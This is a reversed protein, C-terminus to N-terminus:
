FSNVYRKAELYLVIKICSWIDGSIDGGEYLDKAFHDCLLRWPSSGNKNKQFIGIRMHECDLQNMTPSLLYNKLEIVFLTCIMQPCGSYCAAHLPLNGETDVDHFTKPFHEFITQAVEVNGIRAAHHLLKEKMAKTSNTGTVQILQAIIRKNARPNSCALELNSKDHYCEAHTMGGKEDIYSIGEILLLEIMEASGSCCAVRIPLNGTDSSISIAQPFTHLLFQALRVNSGMATIHLLKYKWVLSPASIRDPHSNLLMTMIEANTNCNICALQTPTFLRADNVITSISKPKLKAEERLLFAIMTTTGHLCAEHLPLNIESNISQIIDPYVQLIERAFNVDSIRAAVHLLRHEIVEARDPLAPAANLIISLSIRAGDVNDSELALDLPSLGNKNRPLWVGNLAISEDVLLQVMAPSESYICCEHIPLNGDEDFNLLLNPEARILLRASNFSQFDSRLSRRILINALKFPDKSANMLHKIIVFPMLPDFYALMVHMQYTHQDNVLSPNSKLVCDLVSLPVSVTNQALILYLDYATIKYCNKALYNRVVGWGELKEIQRSLLACLMKKHQM